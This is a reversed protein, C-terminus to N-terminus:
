VDEVVVERPKLRKVLKYEMQVNQEKCVRQMAEMGRRERELDAKWSLGVHWDDEIDTRRMAISYEYEAQEDLTRVAILAAHYDAASPQTKRWDKGYPQIKVLEKAITVVRPDREKTM